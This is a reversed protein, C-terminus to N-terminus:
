NDSNRREPYGYSLPYAYIEKEAKQNFLAERSAQWIRWDREVVPDSYQIDVLENPDCVQAGQKHFKEFQERSNM